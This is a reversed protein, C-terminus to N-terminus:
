ETDGPNLALCQRCTGKFDLRHDNIIFGTDRTLQKELNGLDCSSINVIKNCCECVLHHHHVEPRRAYSQSRGSYGIRCIMFNEAMLKLTRYVTVLGIDPSKKQLHEYLQQPTFQEKMCDVAELIHLRQPTAKCGSGQLKRRKFELSTIPMM